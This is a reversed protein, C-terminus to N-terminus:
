CDPRDRPIDRDPHPTHDGRPHLLRLLAPPLGRPRGRAAVPPRDVPGLLGDSGRGRYGKDTSRPQRPPGRPRVTGRGVSIPTALFIISPVFLYWLRINM